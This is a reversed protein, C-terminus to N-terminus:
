RYRAKIAGWSHAQVASDCPGCGKGMAGVLEGWANSDPLCSSNACLTLDDLAADCFLPDVFLNDSMDCCLSDGHTNGYVVSHTLLPPDGSCVVAEGGSSFAIILNTLTRHFRGCDIASGSSAENFSFTCSEFFLPGWNRVNLAGGTEASNRSFVCGILSGLGSEDAVAGGREASNRAFRCNIIDVSAGLGGGWLCVAGGLRGATNDLFECDELLLPMRSPADGGFSSPSRSDSIFSETFVAGGNWQTSNSEFACRVITVPYWFEGSYVAGGSNAANNESFVCDSLQLGGGMCFVGGGRDLEAANGHFSCRRLRVRAYDSSCYVAGGATAAVCDRFICDEIVPSSEGEIIVGGGNEALGGIISFGRVVCTTDEGSHFRLGRGQGECDITTADAGGSSCLIANTGSFDLDRNLAGAYTGPAVLVTDGASAMNLGEQITPADGPVHVVESLASAPLALAVILALVPRM